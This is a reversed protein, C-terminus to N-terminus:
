AYYASLAAFCTGVRHQMGKLSVAQYLAVLGVLVYVVSSLASAEPFKPGRGYPWRIKPMDGNEVGDTKQEAIGPIRPTKQLTKCRWEAHM